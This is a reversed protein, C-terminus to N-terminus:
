ELLTRLKKKMEKNRANVCFNYVRKYKAYRITFTHTASLFSITLDKVNFSM